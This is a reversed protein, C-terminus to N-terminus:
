LKGKFLGTYLTYSFLMGIVGGVLVDSLYHVSLAVRSFAILIGTAIFLKSFKPMLLAFATFASLATTAHGSPFSNVMYGFDFWQFGFLNENILAPPRYRATIVKIIITFVGSLAVTLFLFLAATAVRSNQRYKAFLFILASPVLYYESLGFNTVISFFKKMGYPNSAFYRALEKDLYFYSYLAFMLAIFIIFLIKNSM